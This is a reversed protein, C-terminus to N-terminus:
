RLAERAVAVLRERGPSQPELRLESGDGWAVEVREVDRRRRLLLWAGIVTLVIATLARM